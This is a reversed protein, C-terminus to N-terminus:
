MIGQKTSKTLSKRQAQSVVKLSSSDVWDDPAGSWRVLLIRDGNWGDFPLPPKTGESLVVGVKDIWPEGFHRPDYSVLDGIAPSTSHTM